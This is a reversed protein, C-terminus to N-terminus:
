AETDSMQLGIYYDKQQKDNQVGSGILLVLSGSTKAQPVSGHL